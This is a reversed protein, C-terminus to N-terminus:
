DGEPERSGLYIGFLVVAGGVVQQLSVSEGLVLAGFVVGLVPILNLLSVATAASIGELGWNYLIYAAFSCGVVLFLLALASDSGLQQTQNADVLALPVFLLAGFVSQVASLDFSSVEASVKRVIFNYFAWAVGAVMLFVVGALENRGPEVPGSASAVIVAVGIFALAMGAVQVVTPRKRYVLFELFATLAPFSAVILSCNTASTYKVGINEFGFYCTIGLFGSLAVLKLTERDFGFLQFLAGQGEVAGESSRPSGKMRAFAFKVLMFLAAACAFRVLGTTFPAMSQYVYKTAVFSASWIVMSLAAALFHARYSRM